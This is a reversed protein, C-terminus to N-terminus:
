SKTTQIKNKQEQEIKSSVKKLLQRISNFNQYKFFNYLKENKDTKIIDCRHLGENRVQRLESLTKLTFDKNEKTYPFFMDCFAYTKKEVSIDGVSQENGSRYFPYQSSVTHIEVQTLLDNLNPYSIYFYYNLLNEIQYFANVCFYYFRETEDITQLELASNEMRLNDVLLQNRLSQNSIYDYHLSNNGKIHLANRISKVDKAISSLGDQYGYKKQLEEVFWANDKDKALEDIFDLLKKLQEKNQGM